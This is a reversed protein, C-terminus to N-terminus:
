SAVDAGAFVEGPPTTCRCCSWNGDPVGPYEQRSQRSQRFRMGESPSDSAIQRGLSPNRQM